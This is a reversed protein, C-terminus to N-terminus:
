NCGQTSEKFSIIGDGNCDTNVSCPANKLNDTIASANMMSNSCGLTKAKKIDGCAKTWDNYSWNSLGRELFACSLKDNDNNKEFINIATSIKEISEISYLRIGNETDYERMSVGLMLYASGIDPNNLNIKKIAIKLDSIAQSNKGQFYYILGRNLFAGGNSNDLSISVTYDNLADEINGKQNKELAKYFYEIALDEKTNAPPESSKANDYGKKAAALRKSRSPHTSYSDDSNTSIRSIIMNAESIPGGLKSLVFGAFEDAELEQQRKVSLAKPEVVEGIQLVLDVSHGNIHHGVEHALVFLNAWNNGNSISNMFERDYLIYRIGKYSTAVANNINECPMLVFRKSAGIASLIRDLGREAEADTGFNNAQLVSCLKMADTNNGYDQGFSVLPIFLLLLLLKKM